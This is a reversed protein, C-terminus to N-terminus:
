KPLEEKNGPLPSEKKTLMIFGIANEMSKENEEPAPKEKAFKVLDALVLLQKLKNRTEANIDKHKLSAFIEDTTQEHATVQYRKEIYERLVDTLEIYYLKVEEHYLKKDRLAELKNLAIAYYPLAPKAKEIAKPRKKLYYIIGIILAILVLTGVVWYWHDLFWDWLNYNVTLPQKIDYIAKTTDVPVTTVQFTLSDTSYSIKKTDFTFSPITYTGAKFSTITYNQTITEAQLNNKDFSTDLKATKVILLKGAISDTIRPFTISDKARIHAIVHLVTQDGIPISVKDVKSEVRVMQAISKNTFCSIFLILFLLYRYGGTNFYRKMM